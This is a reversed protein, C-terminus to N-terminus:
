FLGLDGKDAFSYYRNLGVIIHDLVKISFLKGAEELTKTIERDCYSPEPDGSPHNHVFVVSSASVLLASKYVERPHVPASDLSGQSVLDVGIVCNKTDLLCSYFRERDCEVLKKFRQYVENANNLKLPAYEKHGEFILKTKVKFGKYEYGDFYSEQKPRRM